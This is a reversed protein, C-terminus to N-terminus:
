RIRSCGSCLGGGPSDCGPQVGVCLTWCLADQPLEQRIRCPCMSVPERGFDDHVGGPTVSSAHGEINAACSARSQSAQSLVVFHRALLHYAANVVADALRIGHKRLGNVVHTLGLTMLHKTGIDAAARQIFTQNVLSYAYGAVFAPLQRMIELLDLGAPAISTAQMGPANGGFLCQQTAPPSPTILSPQARYVRSSLPEPLLCNCGVQLLRMQSTVCTLSQTSKLLPERDGRLASVSNRSQSPPTWLVGLLVGELALPCMNNWRREACLHLPEGPDVVLGPLDPPEVQLGLREGALAALQAYTQWDHLAVATHNYFRGSLEAEVFARCQLWDADASLFSCPLHTTPPLLTAM